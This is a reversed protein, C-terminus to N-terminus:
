LPSVIRAPMSGTWELTGPITVLEKNSEPISYTLNLTGVIGTNGGYLYGGGELWCAYVGGNSAILQQLFAYNLDGVDDVFFNFTFDPPAYGKRSLSIDVPNTEPAGLSGIINLSRIYFDGTGPQATSNDLRTDWEAGSSWDTFDDGVRTIHIKDIRGYATGTTCYDARLAPLTTTCVIAM